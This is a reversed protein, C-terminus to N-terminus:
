VAKKPIIIQQGPQISDTDDIGNVRKIDDVTTYYRKAVNWLTDGSQAFYILISPQAALRMDDSPSETIRSILPMDVTNVVRVVASIVTRVEIERSTIMSYNCHDVELEIDCGMNETIDMIDLSHRLPLEAEQCMVPSNSDNVLYLVKNNVVGEIVIKGETIRYEAVGPKSIVNFVESIEQNDDPITITDKIVIQGKNETVFEEMRFSEKELNLRVSPSYTDDIIEVDRSTYGEAYIDLAIDSKILRLEGDNDEEAEFSYDAIRCSVECVTDETAGPMDVFQTFPIGHEMFEIAGDESDGIYLTSVNIEGKVILKDDTVRYEKESIKIDNRLIERVTPKGAPVELSEGVTITNENRGLYSNLRFKNKLVQIDEIGEADSAINMEREMSAKASLKLITKVNIKRSNLIEYDMHEIDCKVKALMGQRVGSVDFGYSFPMSTNISKIEQEETDSVYLIKFRISGNVLVKDQMADSSSVYADGDLLLISAVDPKADPVIIDNEVVTQATDEGIVQNVKFADRLLEVSM